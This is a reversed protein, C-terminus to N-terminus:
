GYETASGPNITSVLGLQDAFTVEEVGPDHKAALQLLRPDTFRKSRRISDVDLFCPSSRRQAASRGQQRGRRRHRPRTRDRVHCTTTEGTPESTSRSTTRRGQHRHAKRVLRSQALSADYGHETLAAMAHDVTGALLAETVKMTFLDVDQTPRDALGHERIAGSGALAFGDEQTVGLIVAAM